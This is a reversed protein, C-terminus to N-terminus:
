EGWRKKKKQGHQVHGTPDCNGSWPLSLGSDYGSPWWPVAEENGKLEKTWMWKAKGICM